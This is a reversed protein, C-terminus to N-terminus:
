REGAGLDMVKLVDGRVVMGHRQSKRGPCCSATLGSPRLTHTQINFFLGLVSWTVSSSGEAKM